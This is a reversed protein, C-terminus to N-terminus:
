AVSFAIEHEDDVGFLAVNRGTCTPSHDPYSQVTIRSEIGAIAHDDVILTRGPAVTAGVSALAAGNPPAPAGAALAAAVDSVVADLPEAFSTRLTASGCTLEPGFV